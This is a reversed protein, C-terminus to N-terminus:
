IKMMQDKHISLHSDSGPKLKKQLLLHISQKDKRSFRSVSAFSVKHSSFSSASGEALTFGGSPMQAPFKEWGCQWYQWDVPRKEQTRGEKIIKGLAEEANM